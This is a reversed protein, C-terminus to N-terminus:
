NIEDLMEYLHCYVCLIPNPSSDSEMPGPRPLDVSAVGGLLSFRLGNKLFCSVAEGYSTTGDIRGTTKTPGLSTVSIICFAKNSKRFCRKWPRIMIVRTMASIDSAFRDIIFLGDFRAIISRELLRDSQRLLTCSSISRM